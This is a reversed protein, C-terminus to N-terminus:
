ALGITRLTADDDRWSKKVKVHLELYIKHEFFKELKKKLFPRNAPFRQTQERTGSAVPLKM